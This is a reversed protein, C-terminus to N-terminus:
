WDDQCCKESVPASVASDRPRHTPLTPNALTACHHRVCVTPAGFCLNREDLRLLVVRTEDSEKGRM